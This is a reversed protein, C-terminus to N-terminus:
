RQVGDVTKWELSVYSEDWLQVISSSVVKQVATKGRKMENM